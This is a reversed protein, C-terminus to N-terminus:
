TKQSLEKYRKDREKKSPFHEVHEKPQHQKCPKMSFNCEGSHGAKLTCKGYSCRETWKVVWGQRDKGKSLRSATKRHTEKGCRGSAREVGGSISYGGSEIGVVETVLNFTGEPTVQGPEIPQVREHGVAGELRVVEPTHNRLVLVLGTEEPIGQLGEVRVAVPVSEGRALKTSEASLAVTVVNTTGHNIDFGEGLALKAPGPDMAPCQAVLARPSEALLDLSTGDMNLGTSSFDGDFSGPIVLPQGPQVFEPFDFGAPPPAPPAPAVPVRARGLVEGGPARLIIRTLKAAPPVAWPLVREGVPRSSADDGSELEVVYGDLRATNAQQEAPTAGAPESVVTGSITDGAALDGPLRVSIAGQPTDFTATTLGGETTVKANTDGAQVSTFLAPALLLALAPLLARYRM